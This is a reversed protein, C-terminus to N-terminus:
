LLHSLAWSVLCYLILYIRRKLSTWSINKQAFSIATGYRKEKLYNYIIEKWQVRYIDAQKQGDLM